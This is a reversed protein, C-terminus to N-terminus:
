VGLEHINLTKDTIALVRLIGSNEENTDEIVKFDKTDELAFRAKSFIKFSM